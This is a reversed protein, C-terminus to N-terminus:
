IELEPQIWSMLILESITSIKPLSLGRYSSAQLEAHLKEAVVKTHGMRLMLITQERRWTCDNWKKIVKKIERLKSNTKEIRKNLRCALWSM